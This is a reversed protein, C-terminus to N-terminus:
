RVVPITRQDKWEFTGLYTHPSDARFFAGQLTIQVDVVGVQSFNSKLWTEELWTIVEDPALYMGYDITAFIGGHNGARDGVNVQIVSLVGRSREFHAKILCSLYVGLSDRAPNFKVTCTPAYSNVVFEPETPQTGLDSCGTLVTFLIACLRTATTLTRHTSGM